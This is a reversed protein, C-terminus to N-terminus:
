DALPEECDPDYSTECPAIAPLDVARPRFRVEVLTEDTCNLPLVPTNNGIVRADFVVSTQVIFIGPDSDSNALIPRIEPETLELVTSVLAGDVTCSFDAIPPEQIFPRDSAGLYNQADGWLRLFAWISIQGELGDPNDTFWDIGNSSEPLWLESDTLRAEESTWVFIYKQDATNSGGCAGLFLVM